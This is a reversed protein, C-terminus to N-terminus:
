KESEEIFKKVDPIFRSIEILEEESKNWWQIRLLKEIEEDKFRKRIMKAPVGAWIEYPGIDSTVVAGMGVVAGDSITVGGKILCHSGIWVDNGIKTEKGAKYEHCSIKKKIIGGTNNFVPSMAVWEMPHSGGGIACYNSICSFNGVSTNSLSTDRGIYSYKGLESNSIVSGVDYKATKHIKSNRIACPNFIKRLVKPILYRIEM